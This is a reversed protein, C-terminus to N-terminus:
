IRGKTQNIFSHYISLSDSFCSSNHFPYTKLCYSSLSSEIVDLPFITFTCPITSICNNTHCSLSWYYYIFVTSLMMFEILYPLAIAVTATCYLKCSISSTEPAQSNVLCQGWGDHVQLWKKTVNLTPPNSNLCTCWVPATSLIWTSPLEHQICWNGLWLYKQNPGLFLQALWNKHPLSAQMAITPQQLWVPMCSMWQLTIPIMKNAFTLFNVSVSLITLLFAYKLSTSQILLSPNILRSHIHSIRSDTIANLHHSVHWPLTDSATLPSLYSSM